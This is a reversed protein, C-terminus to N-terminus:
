AEFNVPSGKAVDLVTAFVLSLQVLMELNISFVPSKRDGVTRLGNKDGTHSPCLAQVLGWIEPFFFNTTPDSKLLM